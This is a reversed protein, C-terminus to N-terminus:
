VFLSTVAVRIDLTKDAEELDDVAADCEADTGDSGEAAMDPSFVVCDTVEKTM